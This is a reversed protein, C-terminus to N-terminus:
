CGTAHTRDRQYAHRRAHGAARAYQHRHREHACLQRGDVGSRDTRVCTVCCIAIARVCLVRVCLAEDRCRCRRRNPRAPARCRTPRRRCSSRSARRVVRDRLVSRARVRVASKRDAPTPPTRAAAAAADIHPLTNQPVLPAGTTVSVLRECVCVYVAMRKPPVAADAAVPTLTAPQARHRRCAHMVCMCGCVKSGMAAAWAQAGTPRPPAIQPTLPAPKADLPAPTALAAPVEHAAAPASRM